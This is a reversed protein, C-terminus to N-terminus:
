RRSHVAWELVRFPFAKSSFSAVEGAEHGGMGDCVILIIAGNELREMRFADENGPREQGPDSLAGLGHQPPGEVEGIGKPVHEGERGVSM